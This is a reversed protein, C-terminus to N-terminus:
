SGPDLLQQCAPQRRYADRLCLARRGAADVPARVTDGAGDAAKIQVDNKRTLDTSATEAASQGVVVAAADTAARGAGQAIIQGAKARAAAQR